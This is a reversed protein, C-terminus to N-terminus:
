CISWITPHLVKFMKFEKSFSGVKFLLCTKEEVDKRKQPKYWWFGTKKQKGMKIYTYTYIYISIAGFCSWLPFMESIRVPGLWWHNCRLWRAAQVLPRCSRLMFGKAEASLTSVLCTRNTPNGGSTRFGHTGDWPSSDPIKGPVHFCWLFWGFPISYKVTICSCGYM